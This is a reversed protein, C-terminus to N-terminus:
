DIIAGLRGLNRALASKRPADLKGGDASVYFRDKVSGASTEVYAMEINLGERALQRSVLYLLGVHDPGSLTLLTAHPHSDDDFTVELRDEASAKLAELRPRLLSVIDAKGEIAEELVVQFQRTEGDRAFCQELDAFTFTDLVFSNANAFAEASVINMGFCTLTGAIYSFLARRDQAVLCLKWLEGDRSLSSIVPKDRLSEMLAFHKVVEVPATSSLYRHPFGLVFDAFRGRDMALPIKQLFAAVENSETIPLYSLYPM